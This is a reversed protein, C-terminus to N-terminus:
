TQNEFKANTALDEKNEGFNLDQKEFGIKKNCTVEDECQM